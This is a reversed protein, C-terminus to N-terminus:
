HLFQIVTKNNDRDEIDIAEVKGGEEEVYIHAAGEIRHSMVPEDQGLMVEIFGADSGKEDISIAYLPMRETIVEDGVDEGTAELKIPHQKETDSLSNLYSTWSQRPIERTEM